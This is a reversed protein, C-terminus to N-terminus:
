TTIRIKRTSPSRGVIFTVGPYCALPIQTWLSSVTQCRSTPRRMRPSYFTGLTPTWGNLPVRAPNLVDRETRMWQLRLCNSSRVRARPGPQVLRPLVLQRVLSPQIAISPFSLWQFCRLSVQRVNSQGRM